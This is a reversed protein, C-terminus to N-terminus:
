SVQYERDPSPLVIERDGEGIFVSRHDPAPDGANLLYLFKLVAGSAELNSADVWVDRLGNATTEATAEFSGTMLRGRRGHAVIEVGAAADVNSTAYSYVRSTLQLAAEGVSGLMVPRIGLGQAYSEALSIVDASEVTRYNLGRALSHAEGVSSAEVGRWRYHQWISYLTATAESSAKAIHWNNTRLKMELAAQSTGQASMAHYTFTKAPEAWSFSHTEQDLVRRFVTNVAASTAEAKGSGSNFSHRIGGRTITPEASAFAEGPMEGLIVRIRAPIVWAVMEGVSQGTFSRTAYVAFPHISTASIPKSDGYGLETNALIRTRSRAVADGRASVQHVRLRKLKAEAMWSRAQGPTKRSIFGRLRVVHDDSLATESGSEITSEMIKWREAYASSTAHMELPLLRGWTYRLAQLDIEVEPYAVGEFSAYMFAELTTAAFPQSDGQLFALRTPTGLSDASAETDGVAYSYVRNVAVSTASAEARIFGWAWTQFLRSGNLLLGNIPATM